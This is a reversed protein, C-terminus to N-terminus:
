PEMKYFLSFMEPFISITLMKNNFTKKEGYSPTFGLKIFTSYDKNSVITYSSWGNSQFNSSYWVPKLTDVHDMGSHPYYKYNLLDRM